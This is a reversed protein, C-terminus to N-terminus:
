KIYKTPVNYHNHGYQHCRKCLTIVYKKDYEWPNQFTRKLDSFHYQKHHAQLEKSSNCIVCQDNDRELIEKRYKKWRKDFLLAGYSGHNKKNFIIETKKDKM